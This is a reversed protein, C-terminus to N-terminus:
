PKLICKFVDTTEDHYMRSVHGTRWPKRPHLTQRRSTVESVGEDAVVSAMVVM